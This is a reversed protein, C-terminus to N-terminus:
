VKGQQRLWTIQHASMDGPDCITDAITILSGDAKHFKQNWDFPKAAFGSNKLLFIAKATGNKGAEDRDLFVTIKPVAIRSTIFQLRQLQKETLCAGMLAGVNLCGAEILVAADFFGEVLVLGFQKIQCVAAPDLLLKDQNYIELGKFFPFSWYKGDMKEQQATLARGVHTLIVSKKSSDNEAIGRVQFVVRGNLPSRKIESPHDPLFGCGLYHSTAESIGRRQLEPHRFQLWKRLDTTIPQNQLVKSCNKRKQKEDRPQIQQETDLHSIGKEIMWKAVEYCSMEYGQRLLIKQCFNLVGVKAGMGSSFDKFINKATNLHLSATKEQTFPSKIWIEDDKGRREADVQLGFVEIVRHWNANKWIQPLQDRQIVLDSSYKKFKSATQQDPSVQGCAANQAWFLAYDCPPRILPHDQTVVSTGEKKEDKSKQAIHEVLKRISKCSRLGTSNATKAAQEIHAAEFRRVLNVIGQMRRQGCRGQEKFLLECLKETQPGIKAARCLLSHTQRSPNFIRDKEEMQAFGPRSSKIHRRIVQMKEPDIIEVEHEYIRVIVQQYLRAPLASYYCQGVQITGDDWVTRSEQNFYSFPTLPLQKLYPKEEQFMEEVQRKARGHIRQAAWRQEWRMLFENQEEILEFKRGKLATNQTHQIANEVTGKRNPDAVRAPDAVVGYHELMAAYVPNLEPEYLDPKIVGEKLNDLVVYQPCGGFYRFAEEHLKAWTQQSSKWVVKRFARRSYKLTMIFLRPRRYKGSSHLTKAGQGYDVQAEEGPLYELRDFQKPDKKKLGRVFRKVSNYRHTFGFSEVLDQYIAVANRGLRVQKEIWGRHEECASRCRYPFIQKDQNNQENVPPWPPPNEEEKQDTGTAVIIASKLDLGTDAGEKIQKAYKRITKRDIKTKRCIVHQSVGSKVLTKITTKKDPKLVNM